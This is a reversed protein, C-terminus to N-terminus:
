PENVWRRAGDSSVAILILVSVATNVLVVLGIGDRTLGSFAALQGIADVSCLAMLLTRAARHRRLTLIWLLAIVAAGIGVDFLEATTSHPFLHDRDLGVAVLLLSGLSVVAKTGSLAGAALLSPPPLRRRTRRASAVVAAGGAPAPTPEVRSLDLVPLDGDTRVIDGGGNRASFPTFLARLVSVAAAPEVARITEVIHDREADIDADIKHTVQFTLLSLGVKRDYTGAALWGVRHGGPLVWGDPTPWFRVHHRQAANGDVEQEYAFAERRGFLFLPSVPAAAYSRRLVASVVIGWSSRLTVEDARTWGARVLATHLQDESGDLALNVPDGLIGTGLVTRGVFYDPVYIKALLQQLRPFGVYAALAWFVVVALPARWSAGLNKTLLLWGLWIVLAGAVAFFAGDATEELTWLRAAVKGRRRGARPGSGRNVRQKSGM